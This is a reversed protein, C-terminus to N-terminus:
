WNYHLDPPPPPLAPPPPPPPPPPTPVEPTSTAPASPASPSTVPTTTATSTANLSGATSPDATADYALYVNLLKQTTKGFRDKAAVKIINYGDYLVVKETFNGVDDIYIPKDNLAIANINRAVGQIEILSDLVTAGDAPSVIKIQPGSILKRAQFFSYGLIFLLLLGILLIRYSTRNTNGFM